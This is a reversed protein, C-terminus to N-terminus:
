AHDREISLPDPESPPAEMAGGDATLNSEGAIQVLLKAAPTFYADRLRILGFERRM